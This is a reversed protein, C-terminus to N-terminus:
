KTTSKQKLNLSLNYFKTSNTPAIRKFKKGDEYKITIVSVSMGIIKNTDLKISDVNSFKISYNHVMTRILIEDKTLIFKYSKILMVYFIIVVADFVFTTLVLHKTTLLFLVSAFILLRPIYFTMDPISELLIESEKINSEM